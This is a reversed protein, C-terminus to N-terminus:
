ARALDHRVVGDHADCEADRDSPDTRRDIAGRLPSCRADTDNIQGRGILCDLFPTEVREFDGAPLGLGPGFPRSFYEAKLSAFEDTNADICPIRPPDLPIEAKIERTGTLSPFPRGRKLGRRYLRSILSDGDHHNQFHSVSPAHPPAM